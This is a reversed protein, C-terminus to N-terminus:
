WEAATLCIRVVAQEDGSLRALESLQVGGVWFIRGGSLLLPVRRRQPLPLKRDIFLDKLKKEGGMGLPMFRDGARFYRVTWPFPLDEPCVFVANLGSSRWGAPLVALSEVTLTQGCPLRYSGPHTITLEFEEPPLAENVATFRLREYEKTVRIGDPLDIRGNPLESAVLGEVGRIHRFSIRRLDGKVAALALRYLRPRFADHEGAVAQLDLTVATGTSTACRRYADATVACLLEEDVALVAATNNLSEVVQPNYTCLLPLLEHRIRNRLFHIDVNSSDERWDIGAKGLYAEIERRSIDLLPRVFLGGGTRPRMGALGSGAAGRLLRLLVTEAQDERHHGLAVAAAGCRAALERFFGYRAERGAEELSLGKAKALGNVDVRRVEAALGYRAAVRRVFSEDGDSEDGRLSHNLHAPVLILPFGPLGALIDLLAVSDAGGSLAVVVTDGPNFLSQQKIYRFIKNRLLQM